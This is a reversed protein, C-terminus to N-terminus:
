FRCVIIKLSEFKESLNVKALDMEFMLVAKVEIEANYRDAGYLIATDVHYNYYAHVIEDEFGKM